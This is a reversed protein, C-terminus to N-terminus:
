NRLVSPLYVGRPPELCLVDDTHDGSWELQARNCIADTGVLRAEFAVTVQSPLPPPVVPELGLYRLSNCLLSPVDGSWSAKEHLMQNFAVVAGRAAVYPYGSRAWKAVLEAGPALGPNQHGWTDTIASVGQLLVHGALVPTMTDTTWSDLTAPTFPSYGGTMYRGGFGWEDFSQVYLGELVKGGGDLYDALADGVIDKDMTQWLLDNGIVVVDYALLDGADPNGNAGADWLTVDTGPCAELAARLLDDKEGVTEPLPFCQGDITVQIM